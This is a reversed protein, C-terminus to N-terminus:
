RVQNNTIDEGLDFPAPIVPPCAEGSVLILFGSMGNSKETSIPM